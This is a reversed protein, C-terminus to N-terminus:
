KPAVIPLTALLIALPFNERLPLSYWNAILAGGFVSWPPQTPNLLTQM